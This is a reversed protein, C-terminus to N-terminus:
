TALVHRLAPEIQPHRFVFGSERLRAPVLRASELVTEDAMRGFMLRLAVAPARVAAPRGLVAALARSFDANRVAGPAVANVPGTVSLSSIAHVFAAAADDLTIWSVWQRGSGAPGGLGARFIPLMKALAGGHAALVMGLRMAVVRVGLVEACRAETEWHRCVRALFGDGAAGSEDIERDGGDGYYGSGSACVLVAPRERVRAITDVLLRTSQVRSELIETRRAQTWRGDAVGAGALNVVATAGEIVAPDLVKAAPDWAVVGPGPRRGLRVVDHGAAALVPVLASGVLGTAGAVVIKM